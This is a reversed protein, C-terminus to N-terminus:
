IDSLPKPIVFTVAGGSQVQVRGGHARAIRAAAALMIAADAGAPHDTWGADFFRRLSEDGVPIGGRLHCELILAPRVTTVQAQVDLTAGARNSLGVLAQFLGLFAMRCRSADLSFHGDAPLRALQLTIGRLRAEKIIATLADEIIEACSTPARELSVTSRALLDAAASATKSRLSEVEALDALVVARLRADPPASPVVAPTAPEPAPVASPSSTVRATAADRLDNLKVDDVDHVLCPVTNLGVTRAARLRRMGTIVRYEAGRRAVALPEIVGLRRISAELAELAKLEIPGDPDTAANIVEPPPPEIESIPIERVTRLPAEGLLEDVYHRGHRMRFRKPLGERSAPAPRDDERGILEDKAFDQLNASSTGESGVPDLHV